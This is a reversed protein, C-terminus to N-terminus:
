KVVSPHLTNLIHLKRFHDSIVLKIYVIQLAQNTSILIDVQEGVIISCSVDYATDDLLGFSTSPDLSTNPVDTPSTSLSAGTIQTLDTLLAHM